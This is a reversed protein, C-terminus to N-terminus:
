VAKKYCAVYVKKKKRNKVAIMDTTIKKGQKRLEHIRASLRRCGVEKEAIRDTIYGREEIIAWIEDRQSIRESM